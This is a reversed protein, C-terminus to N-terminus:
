DAASKLRVVNRLIQDIEVGVSYSGGQEANCYRVEGLIMDSQVDIQLPTGMPLSRPLDLKMGRASIEEVRASLIEPAGTLPTVAALQTREFRHDRRREFFQLDTSSSHPIVSFNM